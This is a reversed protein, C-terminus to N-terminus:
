ILRPHMLPLNGNDAISVNRFRWFKPFSFGIECSNSIDKPIVFLCKYTHIRLFYRYPLFIFLLHGILSLIFGWFSAATLKELYVQYFILIHNFVRVSFICLFTSHEWLNVM